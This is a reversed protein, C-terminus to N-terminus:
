AQTRGESMRRAGAAAPLPLTRPCRASPLPSGGKAIEKTALIPIGQREERHCGEISMLSPISIIEISPVLKPPTIVSVVHPATPGPVKLGISMIRVVSYRMFLAFTDPREALLTEQVKAHALFYHIRLTYKKQRLSLSHIIIWINAKLVIAHGNIGQPPPNFLAFTDSYVVLPSEWINLKHKFITYELPTNRKGPIYVTFISGTVQESFM